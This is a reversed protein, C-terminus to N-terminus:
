LDSNIVARREGKEGKKYLVLNKGDCSLYEKKIGSDKSMLYEVWEGFDMSGGQIPFVCCPLIAFDMGEELGVDVIHETAQDPHLGIILRVRSRLPIGESESFFKQGFLGSVHSGWQLAPDEKGEKKLKKVHKLQKKNLKRGRPDVTTCLIGRLASLEFCTDPYIHSPGSVHSCTSRPPPYSSGTMGLLLQVTLRDNQVPLSATCNSGTTGLLLQM